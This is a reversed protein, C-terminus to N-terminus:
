TTVAILIAIILMVIGTGGAFLILMIGLIKFLAAAGFIILLAFLIIFKLM